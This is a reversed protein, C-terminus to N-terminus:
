VSIQGGRKEADTVDQNYRAVRDRMTEAIRDLIQPLAAPDTGLNGLAESLVRQQEQSPQSDLKKLNELIGEFLRTRLVTADTVGQTAISFGLRNNFFSAAALLPQGGTGMFTSATPILAKAGEVNKLTDAANRLAKREESVAKIYDGQAQENAPVFADVKATVSTAGAKKLATEHEMMTGRFGQRVATLYAKQESTVGPMAALSAAAAERINKQPHQLLQALRARQPANPDVAAEATQLFDGGAAPAALRNAAPASPAMANAPAAAAAAPTMISQLPQVTSMAPPLPAGAQSEAWRRDAEERTTPFALGRENVGSTLQPAGVGVPAPTAVGGAPAPMAAADAPAGGGGFARRYEAAERLSERLTIGKNVLDPVGSGILADSMSLMAKDTYGLKRAEQLAAQTQTARQQGALRAQREERGAELGQVAQAAQAAQLLMNVRDPSKFQIPQFTAQRIISTDLPM